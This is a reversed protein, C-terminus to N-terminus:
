PTADMARFGVYLDWARACDLVTTSLLLPEFM